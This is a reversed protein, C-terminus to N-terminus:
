TGTSEAAKKWFFRVFHVCLYQPLRDVKAERKYVCNRQAVESYKEVEGTMSLKVGEHLHNIPNAGGDIFCSLKMAKDKQKSVPEEPVESNSLTIDLDIGFM